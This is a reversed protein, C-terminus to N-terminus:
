LGNNYITNGIRDTHGTIIILYDGNLTSVYKLFNKIEKSSESNLKYKDYDFYINTVNDNNFKDFFKKEEETLQVSQNENKYFVNNEHKLEREIALFSDIFNKRCYVAQTYNDSVFSYYNWCDLFFFLNATKIPYNLKVDSNRVLDLLRGKYNHIEFREKESFLVKKNDKTTLIEEDTLKKIKKSKKNFYKYDKKRNNDKSVLAYQKYKLSLETGFDDSEYLKKDIGDRKLTCASVLFVTAILSFLLKRNM